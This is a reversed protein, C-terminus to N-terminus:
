SIMLLPQPSYDTEKIIERTKRKNRNERHREKETEINRKSITFYLNIIPINKIIFRMIKFYSINKDAKNTKKIKSREKQEEKIPEEEEQDTKCKNDLNKTSTKKM